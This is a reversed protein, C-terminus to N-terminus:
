AFSRLFSPGQWSSKNDRVAVKVAGNETNNTQKIYKRISINIRQNRYYFFELISWTIKELILKVVKMQKLTTV